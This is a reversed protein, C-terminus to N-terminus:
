FHLAIGKMSMVPSNYVNLVEFLVGVRTDWFENRRVLFRGMGRKIHSFAPTSLDEMKWQNTYSTPTTKYGFLM